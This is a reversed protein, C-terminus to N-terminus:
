YLKKSFGRILDVFICTYGKLNENYISKDNAFLSLNTEKLGIKTHAAGRITKWYLISFWGNKNGTKFLFHKYIVIINALLKEKKFDNIYTWNQWFSKERIWNIHYMENSPKGKENSQM